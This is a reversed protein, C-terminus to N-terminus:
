TGLKHALWESTERSSQQEVLKLFAETTAVKAAATRTLIRFFQADGVRQHLEYLVVTGKDYIVRRFSPYDNKRVDFNIIAPAGTASKQRKSLEKRFSATDGAAKLYLLGSYTAFAENLWNDYTNWVGYGWWKHSIEHALILLDGPDKTDFTLYAIVAANDLLGSATRNVNPLLFTFNRIPDKSGFLRNQYAIIKRADALLLTDNASTARNAKQVTIHVNDSTSVLQTFRQAAIATIEISPGTGTFTYAGPATRLPEHTSVVQYSEPVHVTLQYDVLDYEKDPITPLWNAQATFDALGDTHYRESIIGSYQITVTQQPKSRTFQLALRRLTDKQFTDYFATATYARLTGGTVKGVAFQKNLNLLLGGAPVAADLTYRCSFSHTEPYITLDVAVKNKARSTFPLLSLLLCVLLFHKRM